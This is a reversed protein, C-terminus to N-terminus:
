PREEVRVDDASTLIRVKTGKRRQTRFLRSCLWGVEFELCTSRGDFAISTVISNGFSTSVGVLLLRCPRRSKLRLPALYLAGSTPPGDNVHDNVIATATLAM